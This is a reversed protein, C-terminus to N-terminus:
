AYIVNGRSVDLFAQKAVWRMNGSSEASYVRRFASSSRILGLEGKKYATLANLLHLIEGTGIFIRAWEIGEHPMVTLAYDKDLSYRREIAPRADHFRDLYPWLERAIYEGRFHQGGPTKVVEGVANERAHIIPIKGYGLVLRNNNHSDPGGDSLLATFDRGNSRMFAKFTHPFVVQDSMKANYPTFYDPLSWWADLISSNTYGDGRYRPKMYPGAQPDKTFYVKFFRRDWIKLPSGMLGVSYCEARKQLFYCDLGTGAMALLRLYQRESPVRKDEVGIDQRLDWDELMELWQPHRPVAEKIRGLEAKFADKLTFCGTQTHLGLLRQLHDFYSFDNLEFIDRLYGKGEAEEVRQGEFGRPRRKRLLHYALGRLYRGTFNDLRWQGPSLKHGVKRVRKFFRPPRGFLERYAEVGERDLDLVVEVIKGLFDEIQMQIYTIGDFLIRIM